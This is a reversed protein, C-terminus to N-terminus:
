KGTMVITKCSQLNYVVVRYILYYHSLVHEIILYSIIIAVVKM